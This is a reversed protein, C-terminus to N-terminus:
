TAIYYLQLQKDACSLAPGPASLLAHRCLHPSVLQCWAWELINFELVLTSTAEEFPYLLGTPHVAERPRTAWFPQMVSPCAAPM